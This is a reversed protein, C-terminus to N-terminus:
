QTVTVTLINSKLANKPDDAFTLAQMAYKGPQKLVYIQSLDADESEPGEGYGYVGCRNDSGPGFGGYLHRGYETLPLEAGKAARMSRLAIEVVLPEGLKVTDNEVSITVATRAPAAQQGHGVAVLMAALVPTRM